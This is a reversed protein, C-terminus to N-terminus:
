GEVDRYLGRRVIGSVRSDSHWLLDFASAAAVDPLTVAVFNALHGPQITGAFAPYGLARAPRRTILDLLVPDPLAPHAQRVFKAENLMNLDPNSSRSDTGLALSVGMDYLEHLPFPSRRFHHHTRPCHVLTMHDAQQALLQYDHADLLNGHIILTRPAQCLVKLYDHVSIGRPIASPNWVGREQLLCWLEGSHSALLELEEHSEALHMALPVNWLKALQVASQVLEWSATYPAHPSIGFRWRGSHAANDAYRVSAQGLLQQTREPNLSIWEHFCIGELSSPHQDLTSDWGTSIEGVAFTGAALSESVGKSIAQPKIQTSDADREARWLLVRRLWGVFGTENAPLPATLDSFELHTHANYFAPVLAVNGLERTAHGSRAPAIAV